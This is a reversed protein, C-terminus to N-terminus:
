MISFEGFKVHPAPHGFCNPRRAIKVSQPIGPGFYGHWVAAPRSFDLVLQPQCIPPALLLISSLEPPIEEKNNAGKKGGGFIGMAYSKLQRKTIAATPM